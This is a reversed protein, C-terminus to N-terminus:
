NVELLHLYDIVSRFTLLEQTVNVDDHVCLHARLAILHDIFEVNVIAFKAGELVVVVQHLPVQAFFDLFLELLLDM